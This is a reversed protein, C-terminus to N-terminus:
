YIEITNTAFVPAEPSDTVKVWVVWTGRGPTAAGGPGILCKAAYSVPATTSTTWSAAKWDGSAPNSGVPMFAMQVVDATPNYPAGAVTSDLFVYIYQLSLSSIRVIDAM